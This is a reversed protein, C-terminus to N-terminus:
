TADRRGFPSGGDACLSQRRRTQAQLRSWTAMTSLQPLITCAGRRWGSGIEHPLAEKKHIPGHQKEWRTVWSQIWSESDASKSIAPNRLGFDETRLWSIMEDAARSGM